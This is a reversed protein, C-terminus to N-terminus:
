CQAVRTVEPSGIVIKNFALKGLLLSRISPALNVRDAKILGAIEFGRAEINLPPLIVLGSITTKLGTARQIKHVIITKAALLIVVYVLSFIIVVISIVKFLKKWDKM